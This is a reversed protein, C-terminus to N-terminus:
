WYKALMYAVFQDFSYFMIPEREPQKPFFMEGWIPTAHLRREQMEHVIRVGYIDTQVSFAFKPCNEWKLSRFFQMAETERQAVYRKAKVEDSLFVEASLTWRPEEVVVAVEIPSVMRRGLQYIKGDVTLIRRLEGDVGIVRQTCTDDEFHVVLDLTNGVSQGMRFEKIWWDRTGPEVRGKADNLAADSLDINLRFTEEHFNEGAMIHEVLNQREALKVGPMATMLLVMNTYANNNTANM